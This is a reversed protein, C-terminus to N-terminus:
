GVPREEPRLTGAILPPRPRGPGSGVVVGGHLAALAGPVAEPTNTHLEVLPQGAEVADGVGVRLRVGAAAQVAHEKRARGAGLRWAALGM